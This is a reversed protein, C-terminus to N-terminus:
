GVHLPQWGSDPDNGAMDLGAVIEWKHDIIAGNFSPNTNSPLELQAQWSYTQGSELQQAGAVTITNDYSVRRGRVTETTHRNGEWDSDRVQCTEVARVKLYVSSVKASAKAQAQIEVTAAQGRKVNGVRITVTAAGGTLKNKLDGLFGM